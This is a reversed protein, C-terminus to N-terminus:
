RMTRRGCNTWARSSWTSSGKRSRCLAGHTGCAYGTAVVPYQTSDSCSSRFGRSVTQMAGTYSSPRRDLPIARGDRVPIVGHRTTENDSNPQDASLCNGQPGTMEAHQVYRGLAVDQHRFDTATRQVATETNRMSGIITRVMQVATDADPQYTKEFEHGPPDSGWCRGESNISAELRRLAAAPEDGATMFASSQAGFEDPELSFVQSM